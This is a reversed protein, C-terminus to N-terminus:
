DKLALEVTSLKFRKIINALNKSNIRSRKNIRRRNKLAHPVGLLGACVAKVLVIALESKSYRCVFGHCAGQGNFVSLAQLFYRYLTYVPSVIISNFPFLKLLNWIRNREAYFAKEKSHIGSSASKVHYVIASPIYVCTYGMIWGRLAIDLDELYAFYREDFLGADELMRKRYVAAAGNPAVVEEENEFQGNDSELWGRSRCMGDPYVLLGTSDLRNREGAFYIKSAFMGANPYRQEAGVIEELWSEEVEADNNLLAILSGRAKRIGCNNGACYGTNGDLLLLEIREAWDNILTERSSDTSFNDVVITEFNRYIQKDLSKLCRELTQNGNWNVIVVSIKTRMKAHKEV